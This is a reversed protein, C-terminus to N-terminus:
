MAVVISKGSKQRDLTSIQSYDMSASSENHFYNTVSLIIRYNTFLGRNDAVKLSLRNQEYNIATCNPLLAGDLRKTYHVRTMLTKEQKKDLEM